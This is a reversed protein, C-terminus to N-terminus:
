PPKPHQSAPEQCRGRRNVEAELPRGGSPRLQATDVGSLTGSVNALTDKPGEPSACISLPNEPGTWREGQM